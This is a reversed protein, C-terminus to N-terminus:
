PRCDGPQEAPRLGPVIEEVNVVTTLLVERHSTSITGEPEHGVPDKSDRM